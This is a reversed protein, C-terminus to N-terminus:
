DLMIQLNVLYKIKMQNKLSVFLFCIEYRAIIRRLNHKCIYEGKWNNKLSNHVRYAIM